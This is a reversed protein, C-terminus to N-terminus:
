GSFAKATSAIRMHDQVLIKRGSILNSVGRSIVLLKEGHQVVAVAGPPGQPMTVLSQLAQGLSEKLTVIKNSAIERAAIPSSGLDFSLIGACILLSLFLLLLPKYNM